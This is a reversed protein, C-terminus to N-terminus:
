KKKRVAACFNAVGEKANKETKALTVKQVFAAKAKDDATVCSAWVCVYLPSHTHTIPSLIRDVRGM